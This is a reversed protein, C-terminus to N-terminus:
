VKRARVYQIPISASNSPDRFTEISEIRFGSRNLLDRLRQETMVNRGFRKPPKTRYGVVGQYLVRVTSRIRDWGRLALPDINAMLVTGGPRLIRRMEAVTREPETFHIVLSLFATDFAGDTLSSHQCDEVQFTVTPAKVRQKAIELMGPAIDTALLASAKGALIETFLGTGCGFEIVRGLHGESNVGVYFQGAAGFYCHGVQALIATKQAASM